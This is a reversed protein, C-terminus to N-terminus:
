RSHAKLIDHITSKLLTMNFPKTMYDAAGLIRAKKREVEGASSTLFMIPVNKLTNIARIRKFVEWGDMDPMIIDLMILDPIVQSNQLYKLAEVGSKAKHVEFEDKLFLEATSLHIEDDDVMFVKKM